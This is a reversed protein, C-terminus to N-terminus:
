MKPIETGRFERITRRVEQLQENMKRRYEQEMPQFSEENRLYEMFPDVEFFPLDLGGPWVHADEFYKKAPDFEGLASYIRSINIPWDTGMNLHFELSSRLVRRASDEEGLKLLVLGWDMDRYNTKAYADKADQWNGNFMHFIGMEKYYALSDDGFYARAYHAMVEEDRQGSYYRMLRDTVRPDTPALEEATQFYELAAEVDGFFNLMEGLLMYPEPNRPDVEIATLIGQISEQIPLSWVGALGSVGPELEEAKRVWHLAAEYGELWSTVRALALYGDASNPDSNVAQLGFVAASDMYNEGTPSFLHCYMDALLVLAKTFSRDLVIAKRLLGIAERKTGQHAGIGQDRVDWPLAKAQLYLDYAEVNKTPSKKIRRELSGDGETGFNKAIEFAVSSQIEFIDAVKRDFIETWLHEDTEADILQATIRLTSDSRRVSGELVTRVGLEQAISRINDGSGKYTMMSTRSIVRLDPILSLRAIIEETIGDSFYEQSPDGSMNDFYMVAISNKEGSSANINGRPFAYLVIIAVVLLGIIFTNTLPKKQSATYPNEWSKRSSTKVFGQPSREYTWALYTAIPFGIALGLWLLTLFNPGLGLGPGFAKVLQTLLFALILYAFSAPLVNRRRLEAMFHGKLGKGEFHAPIPQGEGLVAYTKVPFDVNKLEIEGLYQTTIDLRGRISKHVSESIYIGGPDAISQLRSAINVGDGVVDEEEVTVDGLHIGIRLEGEFEERATRQIELACQISDLASSFHALMGDGMEKFFRGNYKEILPKQIERNQKIWRLAKAEDKGMMATYGVIDSFMIAALQRSSEPM